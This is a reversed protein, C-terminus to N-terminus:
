NDTWLESDFAMTSGCIDPTNIGSHVTEEETAHYDGLFISTFGKTRPFRDLSGTGQQWPQFSSEQPTFSFCIAWM